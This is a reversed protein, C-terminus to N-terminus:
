KVEVKEPKQAAHAHEPGAYVKLRQMRQELTKNKPLMGKVAREIIREPFKERVEELRADKIGGPFGSHRYYIKKLDKNGTVMAQQANVVIVYDGGDVHPTYNPKYKGILHKAILTATRGLPAQSADVVVWKRTVDAPKQVFTKAM